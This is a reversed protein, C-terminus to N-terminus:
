PSEFGKRTSLDAPGEVTGALRLFPRDAERAARELQERVIRGQPLGTRESTERLWAALEDPLRVTITQSMHCFHLVCSPSRWRM